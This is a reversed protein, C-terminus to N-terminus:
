KKECELAILGPQQIFRCDRPDEPPTENSRFLEINAIQSKRPERWNSGNSLHWLFDRPFTGLRHFSRDCGPFGCRHQGVPNHAISYRYNDIELKEHRIDAGDGAVNGRRPSFKSKRHKSLNSSESFRKGCEPFDCRLPREGTHVRKHMTM